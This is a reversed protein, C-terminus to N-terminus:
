KQLILFRVTTSKRLRWHRSGTLTIWFMVLLQLLIEISKRPSEWKKMFAEDKMDTAKDVLANYIIELKEGEDSDMVVDVEDQVIVKLTEQPTLVM